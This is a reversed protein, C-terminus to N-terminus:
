PAVLSPVKTAWHAVIKRTQLHLSAVIVGPILGPCGFQPSHNGLPCSPRFVIQGDRCESNALDFLNGLDALHLLNELKPWVQISDQRMYKMWISYFEGKKRLEHIDWAGSGSKIQPGEM